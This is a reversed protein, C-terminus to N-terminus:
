RMGRPPLRYRDNGYYPQTGEREPGKGVPALKPAIKGLERDKPLYWGVSSDDDEERDLDCGREEDHAHHSDADPHRGEDFGQLTLTRNIVDPTWVHPM